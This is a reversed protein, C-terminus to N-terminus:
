LLGIKEMRRRKWMEFKRRKETEKEWIEEIGPWELDINKSFYEDCRDDLENDVLWRRREYNKPMEGHFHEKLVWSIHTANWVAELESKRARALVVKSTSVLDVMSENRQLVEALWTWGDGSFDSQLYINMIDLKKTNQFITATMGTNTLLPVLNMVVKHLPEKQRTIRAVLAAALSLDTAEHEDLEAFSIERVKQLSTKMGGEALELLEFGEQNVKHEVAPHLSCSVSIFICDDTSFNECIIHLLSLLPDVPDEMMKLIEVLDEM